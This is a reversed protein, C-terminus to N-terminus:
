LISNYSIDYREVIEGLENEYEKYLLVTIDCEQTILLVERIDATMTAYFTQKDVFFLSCPGWFIYIVNDKM